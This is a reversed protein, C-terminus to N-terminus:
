NSHKLKMRIHYFKNLKNQFNQPLKLISALNVMRNELQGGYQM